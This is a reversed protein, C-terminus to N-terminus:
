GYVSALIKSFVRQPCCDEIIKEVVFDDIENGAGHIFQEIKDAIDIPDDPNFFSTGTKCIEHAFPLDSTLIPRRRALSEVYPIGFTELKTPFFLAHSSEFWANIENFSLFGANVIFQSLNKNEVDSLFKKVRRDKEDLTLIFRFQIGRSKLIQAVNPIVEINKHTAFSSLCFLQLIEGSIPVRKSYYDRKSGDLREVPCPIVAATPRALVKMMQQAVFESQVVVIQPTKILARINLLKIARNLRQIPDMQKWIEPVEVVAYLWDFYYLQNRVFPVIFDGLNLLYESRRVFRMRIPLYIFNLIIQDIQQVGTPSFVLANLGLARAEAVLIDDHRPSFWVVPRSVSEDKPLNGIFRVLGEFIRM